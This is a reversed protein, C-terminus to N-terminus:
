QAVLYHLLSRALASQVAEEREIARFHRRFDVFYPWSFEPGVQDKALWLVAERVCGNVTRRVAEEIMEARTM